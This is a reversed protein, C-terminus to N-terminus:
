GELLRAIRSRDLGQLGIVVLESQRKEGARWLRDFQSQVKDGVAQVMLRMPKNEVEAFGKIRLVNDLAGVQRVREELVAPSNVPLLPVAFSEFDDHEHDLEDDHHTRRNEIDEEAEAGLGLLVQPAIKGEAVPVVKVSERLHPRVAALALDRGAEDLLDSKSLLVLDACAIQDEFVEEVPNDHDLMEDAERQEQLADMDQAVLGGALAQGDAVAVVGDVTVRARIAPWNFAQVLPKPLALGSTEILIHDVLPRRSLIDELAPQFDDAVTCCICGNALEVINEEPCGALGCGKLVEGDMGIDGFENVLVAFRRGGPHQLLHRVLTTKGSGLFGTIITCPIRRINNNM